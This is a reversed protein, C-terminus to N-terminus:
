HNALHLQSQCLLRWSVVLSVQVMFRIRAELANNKSLERMRKFYVEM